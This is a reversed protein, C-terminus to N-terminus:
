SYFAQILSCQVDALDEQGDGSRNKNDHAVEEGEEVLLSICM